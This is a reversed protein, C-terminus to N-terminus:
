GCLLKTLEEVTNVIYKPNCAALEEQTGYGYLVGVADIGNEAAGWIDHNRDGIMIVTSKDKIDLNDLVHKIVATKGSIAETAGGAFDFYKDMGFHKLIAEAQDVLKATALGITKGQAKLTKLMDEVGDYLRNEFMGQRMMYERMCPHVAAAEEASFGFVEILTQRFPPGVYKLLEKREPVTKGYHTLTHIIGNIIGDASDNITGDMDFLIVQKKKM